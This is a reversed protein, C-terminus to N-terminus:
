SNLISKPGLRSGVDACLLEDAASSKGSLSEVSSERTAIRYAAFAVSSRGSTSTSTSLSARSSAKIRNSLDELHM